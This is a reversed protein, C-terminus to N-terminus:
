LGYSTGGVTRRPDPATTACLPGGEFGANVLATARGASDVLKLAHWRPLWFVRGRHVALLETLAAPAHTWVRPLEEAHEFAARLEFWGDAGVDGSTLLLEVAQGPEQHCKKTHIWHVHHGPGYSTCGDNRVLHPLM